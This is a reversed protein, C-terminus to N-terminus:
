SNPELADDDTVVSITQAASEENEAARQESSVAVTVEFTEATKPRSSNPLINIRKEIESRLLPVTESSRPRQGEQEIIDQL